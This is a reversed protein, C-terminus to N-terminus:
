NFWEKIEINTGKTTNLDFFDLSLKSGNAGPILGTGHFTHFDTPFSGINTVLQSPIIISNGSIIKATIMTNNTDDAFMSFLITNNITSSFSVTQTYNKIAGSVVAVASDRYLIGSSLYTGTMQWSAQNYVIVFRNATNTNGAADSVTYTITYLGALNMNPSGTIKISSTINGDKDDTATAGLETYTGTNNLIFRITDAGIITINPPTTDGKKCGAFALLCGVLAISCTLYFGYKILFINKM